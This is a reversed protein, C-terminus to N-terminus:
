TERRLQRPVGCTITSSGVASLQGSRRSTWRMYGFKRPGGVRFLWLYSTRVATGYDRCTGLTVIEVDRNKQM